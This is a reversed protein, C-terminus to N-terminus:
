YEMKDKKNEAMHSFAKWIFYILFYAIMVFFILSVWYTTDGITNELAPIDYFEIAGIMAFHMSVFFPPISLLFLGIKFAVHDKSLIASGVLFIIALIMPILIIIGFMTDGGENEVYVAGTQNDCLLIIYEGREETFNFYYISSNLLTLNGTTITTGTKNIIEYTYNSCVIVGTNIQCTKNPTIVDECVDISLAVPILLLIM